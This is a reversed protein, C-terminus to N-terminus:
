ERMAQIRNEVEQYYPQILHEAFGKPRKGLSYHIYRALGRCSRCTIYFSEFTQNKKVSFSFTITAAGCEPCPVDALETSTLLEVQTIMAAIEAWKQNLVIYPHKNTM